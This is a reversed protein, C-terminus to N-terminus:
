QESYFMLVAFFRLKYILAMDEDQDSFHFKYNLHSFNIFKTYLNSFTNYHALKIQGHISGFMGMLTNITDM